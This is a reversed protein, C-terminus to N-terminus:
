WGLQETPSDHFHPVQSFEAHFIGFNGEGIKGQDQSSALFYGFKIETITFLLPLVNLVCQCSCFQIGDSLAELLQGTQLNSGTEQISPVVQIIWPNENYPNQPIM